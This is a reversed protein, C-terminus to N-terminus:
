PARSESDVAITSPSSKFIGPSFSLELRQWLRDLNLIRSLRPAPHQFNTVTTGNETGPYNQVQPNTFKLLPPRSQQDQLGAVGHEGDFLVQRAKAAYVDAV